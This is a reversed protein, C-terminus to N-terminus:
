GASHYGDDKDLPNIDLENKFSSFNVNSLM